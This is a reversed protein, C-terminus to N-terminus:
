FKVRVQGLISQSNANSTIPVTSKVNSFSYGLDAELNPSIKATCKTQYGGADSSTSNVNQGGLSASLRCNLVDRIVSGEWAIEGTYVLFDPPAFYGKDTPNKYNWTFLNGAVSFEGFKRELRSFSQQEQNSDSYSGLHLSSFLSTDKDIQWFVSPGYRLASIQNEITKANFKYAGQQLDASVTLGTTLPYDVKLNFNPTTSGSSIDVGVGPRVKLSNIKTEWDIGLPINTVTKTDPQEYTNYGTTFLVRDGNNLRLIATSEIIRNVQGSNNWDNHINPQIGELVAFPAGTSASKTLKSEVASSNSGPLPVVREPPSAPPIYEKPPSLKLDPNFNDAGAILQPTLGIPQLSLSVKGSRIHKPDIAATSTATKLLLYAFISGATFIQQWSPFRRLVTQFKMKQMQIIYEIGVLHSNLKM